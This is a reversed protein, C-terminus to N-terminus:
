LERLWTPVHEAYRLPRTVASWQLLYRGAAYMQDWQRDFLMEFPGCM